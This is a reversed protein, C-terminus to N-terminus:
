SRRAQIDPVELNDLRSVGKAALVRHGLFYSFIVHYHSLTSHFPMKCYLFKRAGTCLRSDAWVGAKKWNLLLKISTTQHDFHMNLLLEFDQSQQQCHSWIIFYVQENCEFRQQTHSWKWHGLHCALTFNNTMYLPHKITSDSFTM